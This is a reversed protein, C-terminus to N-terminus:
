TTETFFKAVLDGCQLVVTGPTLGVVNSSVAFRQRQAAVGVDDICAFERRSKRLLSVRPALRSVTVAETEDGIGATGERLVTPRRPHSSGGQGAGAGLKLGGSRGREINGLCIM